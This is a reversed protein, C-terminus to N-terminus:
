NNRGNEGRTMQFVEDSLFNMENLDVWDGKKVGIDKCDLAPIVIVLSSGWKKVQRYRLNQKTQNNM